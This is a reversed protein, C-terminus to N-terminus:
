DERRISELVSRYRRWNARLDKKCADLLIESRMRGLESLPEPERSRWFRQRHLFGHFNDYRIVERWRGRIRASYTIAFRKLRPAKGRVKEFGMDVDMRDELSLFITYIKRKSM